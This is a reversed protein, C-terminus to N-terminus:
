KFMDNSLLNVSEYYEIAELVLDHSVSLDEATLWLDGRTDKLSATLEDVPVLHKLAWLHAFHEVRSVNMRQLRNNEVKLMYFMDTVCHGMEESLISLEENKLKINKNIGIYKKADLKISVGKKNALNIKHIQIDENEALAYLEDLKDM